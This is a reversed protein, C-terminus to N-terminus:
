DPDDSSGEPIPPGEEQVSIRLQGVLRVIQVQNSFEGEVFALHTADVRKQGWTPDMEIWQGAYFAPWAHYFFQGEHFALGVLVRSPIGAARGLAAALYTHENCDGALNALVDTASPLTIRMEKRVNKYVWDCINQAAELPRTGPPVIESAKRRIAPDDAQLFATPRTAAALVEDDPPRSDDQMVAAHCVRIDTETPSGHEMVQRSSSSLMAPDIAAGRLRLRLFSCRRPESITGECPVAVRRLIDPAPTDDNLTALAESMSCRQMTWLPTEQKLATGQSNIWTFINMGAMDAKLVTTEINTGDIELMEKRLATVIVPVTALSAPDLTRFTVQQGVPLDRMMMETMPSYVLVDDPVQIRTRSHQGNNYIHIYFRDRQYRKGSVLIRYGSSSLHFSFEQLQYLMDLSASADAVFSRNEGLMTLRVFLRNEILYQQVPNAENVEFNSYSYGIPSGDYLIRMWSDALLTHGSILSRYGRISHAFYEALLEYRVLWATALIWFFIVTVRFVNRKV